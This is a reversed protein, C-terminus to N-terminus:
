RLAANVSKKAADVIKQSLQAIEVESIAVEGSQFSARIAVSKQGAQLKDGEYIDFVNIEKLTAGCSKKAEKLLDGIAKESDMVFAFDREANAFKSLSKFKTPRPQGKLLAELNLEAIVVPFRIKEESLLRPHMSGVFGVAEGQVIVQAWQGLHLFAPPNGGSVFSYTTIQLSQLLKEIASKINFVAPTASAYIGTATGWTILSLRKNEIYENDKKLFVAGTEFLSSAENGSRM